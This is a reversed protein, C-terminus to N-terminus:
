QPTALGAQRVRSRRRYREGFLAIALLLEALDGGYYMLKAAPQIPDIFHQSVHPLGYAYLLKGLLAHAATAMLLVGLRTFFGARHPAPNPGAIAWTFLSGALLFHLQVLGHVLSNELSLAFLPTYYLLYMGGANLLLATVPHALWRLAPLRLLGATRRAAPRPLTRLLLTVPAALALFLPAFMGVVLHQLMHFRPDHHIPSSLAPSWAAALLTIGGSFSTTRWINWGRRRNPQWGSRTAAALYAAQVGALILWPYAFLPAGSEPGHM